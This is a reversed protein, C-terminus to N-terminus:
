FEFMTERTPPYRYDHILAHTGCILKVVRADLNDSSDEAMSTRQCTIGELRFYQPSSILPQLLRDGRKSIVNRIDVCKVDSVSNHRPESRRINRM